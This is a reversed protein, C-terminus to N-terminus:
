AAVSRELLAVRVKPGEILTNHVTCHSAVALVAMRRASPIGEPLVLHVDIQGVRAPRALMSYTASVM